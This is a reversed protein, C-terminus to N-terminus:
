LAGVARHWLLRLTSDWLRELADRGSRVLGKRAIENTSTILAVRALALSAVRGFLACGSTHHVMAVVPVVRRRMHRSQGARLGESQRAM